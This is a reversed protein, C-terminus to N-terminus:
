YDCLWLLVFKAFFNSVDLNLIGLPYLFAVLQVINLGFPAEGCCALEEDFFIARQKM